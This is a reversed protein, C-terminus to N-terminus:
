KLHRRKQHWHCSRHGSHSPLFGHCPCASVVCGFLFFYFKSLSRRKSLQKKKIIRGGGMSVCEKKDTQKSATEEHSQRPFESRDVRVARYRSSESNCLPFISRIPPSSVSDDPFFSPTPVCLLKWVWNVKWSENAPWTSVCVLLLSLDVSFLFHVLFFFVFRNFILPKCDCWLSFVYLFTPTPSDDLRILHPRSHLTPYFFFSAHGYIAM